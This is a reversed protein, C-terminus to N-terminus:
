DSRLCSNQFYRPTTIRIYAGDPDIVRFDKKGWPREQLEEHIVVKNSILSNYLSDIQDTVFCFEVRSGVIKSCDVSILYDPCDEIPCLHIKIGESIMVVFDSQKRSTKMGLLEYFRESAELSKVYIEYFVSQIM